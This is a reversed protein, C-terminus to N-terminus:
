PMVPPSFKQLAIMRKNGNLIKHIIFSAKVEEILTPCSQIRSYTSKVYKSGDPSVPIGEFADFVIIGSETLIRRYEQFLSHFNESKEENASYWLAGGVDWVVDVTNDKIPINHADLALFCFGNDNSNAINRINKRTHQIWEDALIDGAIVLSNGGLVRRKKKDKNWIAFEHTARNASTSLIISPKDHAPILGRKYLADYACQADQPSFLHRDALEKFCFHEGKIYQMRLNDRLNLLFIFFTM